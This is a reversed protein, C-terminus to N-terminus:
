HTLGDGATADWAAAEGTSAWENWAQEYDSGMAEAGALVRLCRVAAHLAASRSAFGQDHAYADLFAVDEPPLSVSVKM